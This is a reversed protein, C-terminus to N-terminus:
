AEAPTIIVKGRPEDEIMHRLAERAESLPYTSDIIPTIKGAELLARLLAVSDRRSPLSSRGLR